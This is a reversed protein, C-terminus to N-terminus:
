FGRREQRPAESRQNEAGTQPIKGGCGAGHKKIIHPFDGVASTTCLAEFTRSVATHCSSLPFSALALGIRLYKHVAYTSDQGLRTCCTSSVLCAGFPECHRLTKHQLIGTAQWGFAVSPAESLWLILVRHADSHAQFNQPVFKSHRCIPPFEPNGM